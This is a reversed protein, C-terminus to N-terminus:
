KSNLINNHAKRVVSNYLFQQKRIEELDGQKNSFMSHIMSILKQQTDIVENGFTESFQAYNRINWDIEQLKAYSTLMKNTLDDIKTQDKKNQLENQLGFASYIVTSVNDNFDTAHKLFMEAWKVQWEKEKLVNIKSKEVKRSIILGFIVVVLPTLFAVILKLIEITLQIQNMIIDIELKTSKARLKYIFSGESESSAFTCFTYKRKFPSCSTKARCFISIKRREHGDNRPTYRLPVVFCDRM